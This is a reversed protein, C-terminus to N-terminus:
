SGSQRPREVRVRAHAQSCTMLDFASRGATRQMAHNSTQTAVISVLEVREASEAIHDADSLPRFRSTFFGAERGKRTKPNVIEELLLGAGGDQTYPDTGLQIRRITYVHGASPVAACWEWIGDHFRGDICLVKQGIYWTGNVM